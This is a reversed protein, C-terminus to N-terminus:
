GLDDWELRQGASKKAMLPRSLVEPLRDPTIGTGPRRYDIDAETLVHGAPLDRAVHLSRRIANRKKREEDSLTRRSNGLAVEMERVVQIFRQMDQPELSMVHEASRITRDETITKELMNAGITLAAIDMDWGVSHDSFAVPCGFVQKITPIVRLNISELHAPYGSPCHHIVINNNGEERIADVASEIEGLSAMGTDLQICLGTRAAYRIFPLHNVDASAIKISQCGIEVLFDVDDHFCATAFFALGIDDCYCKLERWEEMSMRRRLLIDRLPETVTEMQGTAADVLVQYTFPLTPDAVLRLPDFVQFKIANGGAEKAYKALRKASQLGQHTPGAEFTIFCPASDGVFNGNIQISHGCERM